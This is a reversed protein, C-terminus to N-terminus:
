DDHRTNFVIEDWSPMSSRGPKKPKESEDAGAHVESLDDEVAAIPATET